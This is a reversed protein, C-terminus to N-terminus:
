VRKETALRGTLTIERSSGIEIRLGCQLLCLYTHEGECGRNDAIKWHGLVVGFCSLITGEDLRILPEPNSDIEFIIGHKQDLASRILVPTPESDSSSYLRPPAAQRAANYEVFDQVQYQSIGLLRARDHAKHNPARIIWETWPNRITLGRFQNELAEDESGCSTPSSWANSCDQSSCFTSPTSTPFQWDFRTEIAVPIPLPQEIENELSPCLTDSLSPPPSDTVAITSANDSRFSEQSIRFDVSSMTSVEQQVEIIHPLPRRASFNSSTWRRLLPHILPPFTSHSNEAVRGENNPESSHPRLRGLFSNEALSHIRNRPSLGAM